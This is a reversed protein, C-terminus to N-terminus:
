DHKPIDERIARACAAIEEAFAEDEAMMETVRSVGHMVTSHDKQGFYRGIESYSKSTLIKCLYMAVFRARVIKTARRPARIDVMLVGSRKVVYEAIDRLPIEPAEDKTIVKMAAVIRPTLDDIRRTISRFETLLAALDYKFDYPDQIRTTLRAHVTRDVPKLDDSTIELSPM